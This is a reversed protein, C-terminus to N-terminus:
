QSQLKFTAIIAKNDPAGTNDFLTIFKDKNKMVTVDSMRSSYNSEYASQTNWVEIVVDYAQGGTYLLVAGNPYGYLDNKSDLARYSAPYSIEFGYLNNKYTSWGVPVSSVPTTVTITKVIADFTDYWNQGAGKGQKKALAPEFASIKDQNWVQQSGCNASDVKFFEPMDAIIINKQGVLTLIVRYDGTFFTLKRTFLTSCVEFQSLITEVQGNLSGIKVLNVGEGKALRDKEKLADVRGMSQPLDEPIDALKETVVNLVIQQTGKSDANLLVSSPYKLSFAAETNTYTKWEVTSPTAGTPESTVTIIKTPQQITTMPTINQRSFFLVAAVSALVLVAVLLIPMLIKNTAPHSPFVVPTEIPIQPVKDEM